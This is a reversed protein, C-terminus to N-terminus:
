ICFYEVWGTVVPQRQIFKELADVQMEIATSLQIADLAM